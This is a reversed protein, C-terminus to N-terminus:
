QGPMEVPVTLSPSVKSYENVEFWIWPVNAMGLYQEQHTEDLCTLCLVSGLPSVHSEIFRTLLVASQIFQLDNKRHFDNRYHLLRLLPFHHSKRTEADLVCSFNKLVLAM